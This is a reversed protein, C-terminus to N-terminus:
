LFYRRQDCLLEEKEKEQLEFLTVKFLFLTVFPWFVFLMFQAHNKKEILRPM